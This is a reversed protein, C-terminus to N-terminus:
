KQGSFVGGATRDVTTFAWFLSTKAENVTAIGSLATVVAQCRETFALDFVAPDAARPQLVGNYTCGTSSSGTVAGDQAVTITMVKSGGSYTGQWIGVADATRAATDYRSNYSLQM